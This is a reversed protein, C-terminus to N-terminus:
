PAPDKRSSAVFINDTTTSSADSGHRSTSSAPAASQGDSRLSGASSHGGLVVFLPAERWDASPPLAATVAEPLPKSGLIPALKAVYDRTEAPLPRDSTLYEDYRGPGANYAALMGGINGYRDFMERLYATGALINDRPDFPDDGLRYKARLETWTKPMIQMLGMAGAGSVARIDHTSEAALVAGIWDEPIRYRRSAEAIDESFRQEATPAAVPKDQAFDPPPSAFAFVGSLLLAAVHGCKGHRRRACDLRRLHM